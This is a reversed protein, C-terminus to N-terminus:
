LVTSFTYQIDSVVQLSALLKIFKWTWERFTKEDVGVVASNVSELNYTKLFFLCWLLHKPESGPPKNKIRTWTAACVNPSVGFFSRFKRYGRLSSSSSNFKMYALGDQWFTETLMDM